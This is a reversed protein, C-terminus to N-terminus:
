SGPGPHRVTLRSSLVYIRLTEDDNIHQSVQWEGGFAAATTQAIDKNDASIEETM